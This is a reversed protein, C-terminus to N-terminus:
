RQTQNSLSRDVVGHLIDAETKSSVIVVIKRPDLEDVYDIDFGNDQLYDVMEDVRGHPAIVPVRYFRPSDYAPEDDHFNMGPNRSLSSSRASLTKMKGRVRRPNEAIDRGQYAAYSADDTWRLKRPIFATNDQNWIFDFHDPNYDHIREAPIWGTQTDSAAYRDPNRKPRRIISSPNRRPGGPNREVGHMEEFWEIYEAYSSIFYADRDYDFFVTPSYMDGTNVYEAVADGSGIETGNPFVAEVGHCELVENIALMTMALLSPDHYCQRVWRRVSKFERPDVTEHILGYIARAADDSQMSIKGSHYEVLEAINQETPERLGDPNRKVVAGPAKQAHDRKLQEIKDELESIKRNRAELTSYFYRLNTNAAPSRRRNDDELCMYCCGYQRLSEDDIPRMEGCSPCPTMHSEAFEREEPDLRDLWAEADEPDLHGQMPHIKYGSTDGHGCCPYDECNCYQPNRRVINSRSSRVIMGVESPPAGCYYCSGDWEWEREHRPAKADNVPDLHRGCRRCDAWETVGDHPQWMDHEPNRRVINSRSSYALYHQREKGTDMAELIADIQARYARVFERMPMRSRSFLNWLGEDNQVMEAREEDNRSIKPNSEIMEDEKAVTWAAQYFKLHKGFKWQEELPKARIWKELERYEKKIQKSSMKLLEAQTRIIM